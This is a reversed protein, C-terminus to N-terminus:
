SAAGAKTPVLKVKVTEDASAAAEVCLGIYPDAGETTTAAGTTLDVATGDADWFVDEGVAIAGTVKPFEFVGEIALAGQRNAEIDETAIGVLNEQVVVDGATVASGPTYPITDGVYRFKVTM